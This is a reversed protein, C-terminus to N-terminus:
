RYVATKKATQSSMLVARILLLDQLILTSLGSASNHANCKHTHTYTHIIYMYICIHLTYTYM